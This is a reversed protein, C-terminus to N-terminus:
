LSAFFNSCKINHLTLRLNFKGSPFFITRSEDAKWDISAFESLIKLERESLTDAFHVCCPEKFSEVSDDRQLWIGALFVAFLGNSSSYTNTLIM